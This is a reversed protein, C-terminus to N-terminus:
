DETPVAWRARCASHFRFDVVVPLDEVVALLDVAAAPLDVAVPPDEVLLDEEKM